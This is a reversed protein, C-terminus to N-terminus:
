SVRAAWRVQASFRGATMRAFAGPTAGTIRVFHRHFQSQDCYGLSAAVESAPVGRQLLARARLMRLQTLYEYPPMGLAARFARILHYKDSRVHDALDDLRVRESLHQRLYSRARAIAPADTRASPAGSWPEVAEAIAVARELASHPQNLRARLTLLRQARADVANLVPSASGVWHTIPLQAADFLVVEYSAAGDREQDRYIEGPELLVVDGPRVPHSRGRHWLQSSGREVVLYGFLDKMGCYLQDEDEFRASVVGEQALRALTPCQHEPTPDM